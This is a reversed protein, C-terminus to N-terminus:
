HGQIKVLHILRDDLGHLRLETKYGRALKLAQILTAIGSSDMHTVASMDLTVVETHSAQLLALLRERLAPSSDTDIRGYLCALAGKTGEVISMGAVDISKTKNNLLTILEKGPYHELPLPM